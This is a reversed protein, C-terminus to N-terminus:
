AALRQEQPVMREAAVEYLREFSEGDAPFFSLAWDAGPVNDTVRRVLELAGSEGTEPMVLTFRGNGLYGAVDTSRTHRRIWDALAEQVAWADEPSSPGLLLVSLDHGYRAARACEEDGRLTVYWHAFLGTDREYIVLKRGSEILKGVKSANADLTVARRQGRRIHALTGVGSVLMASFSVFAPAVWVSALAVVFMSSAISLALYERAVVGGM